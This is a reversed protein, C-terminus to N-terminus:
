ARSRQPVLYQLIVIVTMTFMLSNITKLMSYWFLTGGSEVLFLILHHIFVLPVAYVLFWQVGQSPLNPLAGLDYGGQPTITGLWFNRLYAIFVMTFAHLGLSNYFIDVTFGIAFGAIMLFLNSTEIPM